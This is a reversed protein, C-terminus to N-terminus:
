EHLLDRFSNAALLGGTAVVAGMAFVPNLLGTAALPMTVGNYLLALGNNQKVRRRAADALDFTTEVAALDDDVISIDAADSALATGGGLSIGLDATALAPADNTGDGVMTVQGRSQLRRITATKGAPPVGAFVHDVAPHSDLFDTAAEDDGTLVVIEIDRDNLQTLTDDWGARPEDGVVVVGEAHGDRGVVVPLHGATRAEAARTEIQESVSWGLEAFLDLNGVLVRTDEVVGEVGTAHSTFETIDAAYEHDSGDAVGGDARSRDGEQNRQAFTNVIADAAPHSARQELAAVTELLDSPADVELVDMQGTTLTGTKDFVVVDVNRLREFVTEDFIVIGREVAQEISTAVSLPTALGLAWPCGVLLVVLATLVAVPIGTGVLLSGLGALVAGGVVVPIIVSALKDAQRQVGHDGSQLNWVSTVLRDISSTTGDSVTLVAAGNTVVAGGVVEDGAQKSVPLSEGTVIAEDVTCESEALVGDVPIREGERVLVREGPELSHVDVMTTGDAGYRRAETVHSITLNTLRDMARQKSLSEYFIAAVVSAAVVITLDYFVDLRGLLFAITSYVYASVVTIAVLFDTNPQRMKLSVYAGQLLPLGTFVLVVGTLVLFLPLILLGDGGGIGSTSAYMDLTGEGFFSSLQAPYLLVAYPLLMFTGFIVGAAYRFGLVEDIGRENPEDSRRSQGIITPTDDSGGARLTASYGLTSLTDCLTEKSVRDPDYTIRVTETVYSAAVDVVGECDEAVSELFAECTACHMGDVQFFAREESGLRPTDADREGAGAGSERMPDDTPDM